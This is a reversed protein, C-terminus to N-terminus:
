SALEDLIDGDIEQISITMIVGNRHLQFTGTGDKSARVAAQLPRNGMRNRGVAPVFSDSMLALVRAKTVQRPLYRRATGSGDAPVYPVLDGNRAWYDLQRYTVRAAQCVQRASLMGDDHREM